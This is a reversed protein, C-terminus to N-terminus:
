DIKVGEKIVEGIVIFGLNQLVAPDSIHLVDGVNKGFVYPTEKSLSDNRVVVSRQHMKDEHEIVVDEAQFGPTEV